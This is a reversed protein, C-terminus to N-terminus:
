VMVQKLAGKCMCIRLSVTMTFEVLGDDIAIVGLPVSGTPPSTSVQRTQRERPSLANPCSRALRMGGSIRRLKRHMKAGKLGKVGTRSKAGRTPHEAQSCKGVVEAPSM